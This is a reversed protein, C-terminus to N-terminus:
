YSPGNLLILQIGITWIKEFSDVPNAHTSLHNSISSINIESLPINIFPRFSLNVNGGNATNLAFYAQLSFFNEDLINGESEGNVTNKIKLDNYLLNTGLSLSAIFFEIGTGYMSYNYNLRQSDTENSAKTSQFNMQGLFKIAVPDFRYRLAFPIGSFNTLPKLKSSFEPHSINFTEIDSNVPANLVYAFSYGTEFNMQADVNLTLLTFSALIALFNNQTM